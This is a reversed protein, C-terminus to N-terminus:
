STTTNMNPSGITGVILCLHHWQLIDAFLSQNRLKNRQVVHINTFVQSGNVIVGWLNHRKMFTNSYCQITVAKYLNRLWAKHIMSYIIQSISHVRKKKIMYLVGFNNVSKFTKYLSLVFLVLQHLLFIM